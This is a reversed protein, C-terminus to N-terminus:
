NPLPPNFCENVFQNNSPCDWSIQTCLPWESSDPSLREKQPNIDFIYVGAALIIIGIVLVIISKGGM